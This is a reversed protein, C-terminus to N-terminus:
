AVKVIPKTVSSLTFFIIMATLLIAIIAVIVTTRTLKNVGRLVYDETTAIMVSWSNNANGLPVPRIVIELNTKLAPSYSSCEFSEGNRVASITDQMYDGYVTDVDALNKGVREEISHGIIFGDASYIVMAAIEEFEAVTQLVMSHAPGMDLLCGVIGVVDNTRPNVIPVGLISALIDKGERIRPIPPDYREKRANPSNLREMVTDVDTSARTQIQGSERTLTMAYQGTATSGTRGIYQADMGDVADPKWVTYIVVVDPNSTLTSRLMRDFRDRREQVPFEEYDEFINALGRLVQLRTNARGIWYEAQRNTLRQLSELSLDLTTKSSGNLLLVAIAAVVVTMIVIVMLSLKFKLKM